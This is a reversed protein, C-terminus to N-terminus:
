IKRTSQLLELQENVLTPGIQTNTPGCDKRRVSGERRSHTRRKRSISRYHAGIAMAGTASKPDLVLVVEGDVLDKVVETWKPRTNLM